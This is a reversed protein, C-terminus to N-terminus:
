DKMGGVPCGLLELMLAVRAQAATLAGAAQWHDGERPLVGGRAVRSSRWVRVGQDEAKQLARALGQHVTGHGTGAVVLGALGFSLQQAQALLAEVVVGDAGAHSTVIEVRPPEAVDLCSWGVRGPSPWPRDFVVAGNDGVRGLPEVGGGDFADIHWTHAKRVAHGSWLVGAMVAVVGALGESAALEAVRVADRLNRPGDAQASTAARMAATLVVPKDIDLLCHLLYATEELTDTGHTIVVAGVEDRLLALQIQKALAQWVAWGMDKSDIQAVQRTELAVGHLGPVAQLLQEVSLQAAQYGVDDPGSGTGAITGGTGLVVVVPSKVDM